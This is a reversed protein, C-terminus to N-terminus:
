SHPALSIRAQPPGLLYIISPAPRFVRTLPDFGASVSVMGPGQLPARCLSPRPKSSVYPGPIVMEFPLCTVRLRLPLHARLTRFRGHPQYVPNLFRLGAGQFSVRTYRRTYEAALFFFGLVILRKPYLKATLSPNSGEIRQRICVKWAHAKSWEAVEGNLARM